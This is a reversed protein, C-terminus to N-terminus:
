EAVGDLWRQFAATARWVAAGQKKIMNRVYAPRSATFITAIFPRPDGKKIELAVIGPAVGPQPGEAGFDLAVIAGSPYRLLPGEELLGHVRSLDDAGIRRGALKRAVSGALTVVASEAGMAEQVKPALVALPARNRPAGGALREVRWSHALDRTAARAMGAQLARADAADLRPRRALAELRGELFAEANRLRDKGPNSSWAPDLGAPLDRPKLTVPDRVTRRPINVQGIIGRRGAEQATIQRVHCKCGWGNPPMWENWFPDDVPLVWGSKSAHHPRHRESPGLQYLLYPMAAKVREIREWQGAARAARMNARYITRLRRPSGLQVERGEVIKVGWWGEAALRPALGKAFTEYTQGEDLAKQLADKVAGLIDFKASQAVTFAVAHEQPELARFGRTAVPTKDALFDRVARPPAAGFAYAPKDTPDAM